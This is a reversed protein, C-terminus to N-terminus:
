FVCYFTMPLSLKIFIAHPKRPYHHSHFSVYKRELRIWMVSDLWSGHVLPDGMDATGSPLESGLLSILPRNICLVNWKLFLTKFCESCFYWFCSRFLNQNLVAIIQKETLSNRLSGQQMNPVLINSDQSRVKVSTVEAAGKLLGSMQNMWSSKCTYVSLFFRCLIVRTINM